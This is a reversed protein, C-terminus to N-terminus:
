PTFDSAYEKFFDIPRGEYLNKESNEKFLATLEQIVESHEESIQTLDYSWDTNDKSRVGIECEYATIVMANYTEVALNKTFNYAPFASSSSKKDCTYWNKADFYEQHETDFVCDYRAYLEDLVLRIIYEKTYQENQGTIKGLDDFTIAREDSPFLYGDTTIDFFTETPLERETDQVTETKTEAKAHVTDSKKHIWDSKNFAVAICILFIVVISTVIDVGYRDWFKSISEVIGKVMCCFIIVILIALMFVSLNKFSYAINVAPRRVNTVGSDIASKDLGTSAKPSDGTESQSTVGSDLPANLNDSNKNTADSDPEKEQGNTATPSDDKSPEDTNKPIDPETISSDMDGSDGTSDHANYVNITNNNGFFNTNGDGSVSAFFSPAVADPESVSLGNSPEDKQSFMHVGFYFIGILLLSIVLVLGFLLRTQKKETESLDANMFNDKLFDMLKEFAVLWFDKM